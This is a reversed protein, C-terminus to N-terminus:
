FEPNPDQSYSHSCSATAPTHSPPFPPSLPALSARPPRPLPASPTRFLHSAPNKRLM